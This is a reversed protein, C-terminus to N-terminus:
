TSVRIRWFGYHDDSVGDPQTRPAIVQPRPIAGKGKAKPTAESLELWLFPSIEM